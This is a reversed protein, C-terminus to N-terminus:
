PMSLHFALCPLQRMDSAVETMDAKAGLSIRVEYNQM